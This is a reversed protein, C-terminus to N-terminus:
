TPVLVADLAQFDFAHVTAIGPTLWHAQSSEIVSDQAGLLLATGSVVVLVGGGPLSVTAQAHSRVRLRYV